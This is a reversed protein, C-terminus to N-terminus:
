ASAAVPFSETSARHASKKMPLPADPIGHEQMCLTGLSSIRLIHPLSSEGRQENVIGAELAEAMLKLYDLRSRKM